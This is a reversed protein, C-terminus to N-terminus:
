LRVGSCLRGGRGCRSKAVELLLSAARIGSCVFSSVVARKVGTAARSRQASASPPVGSDTGDVGGAHEATLRSANNLPIAGASAVSSGAAIEAGDSSVGGHPCDTAGSVGGEEGGADGTLASGTALLPCLPPGTCPSVTITKSQSSVSIAVVTSVRCTHRM